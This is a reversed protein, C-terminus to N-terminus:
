TRKRFTAVVKVAAKPHLTCAHLGTCAGAWGVFRYGRAPTARLSLEKGPTLTTKCRGPCRIGGGTVRGKSRVTV